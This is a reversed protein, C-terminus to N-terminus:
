GPWIRLGPEFSLTWWVMDSLAIASSLASHARWPTRRHVVTDDSGVVRLFDAGDHLEGLFHLEVRDAGFRGFLDGRPFGGGLLKVDFDGEVFM